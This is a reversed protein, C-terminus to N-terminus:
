EEHPSIPRRTGDDRIIYSISFDTITSEWILQPIGATEGKQTWPSPVWGAIKDPRYEISTTGLNDGSKTV